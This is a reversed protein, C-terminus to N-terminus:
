KIYNDINTSNIYYINVNSFTYGENWLNETKSFDLIGISEEYKQEYVTIFLNNELIPHELENYEVEYEIIGIIREIIKEINYNNIINNDINIKKGCVIVDIYIESNPYKNLCFNVGENLLINSTLGGDIFLDNDFPYPPFLIPIATSSMIIDTFGLFNIDEEDFVKKNGTKLSTSGLLVPRIAKKYEYVEKVKRKLPSNDYLSLGNLFYINNYIDKNELNIWFNKFENVKYKEEGSVVTSLYAANISGSSIGTILDWTKNKEILNSVLGIEYAGFVGGGSLSLIKCSNIVKSFITFLFISIKIM